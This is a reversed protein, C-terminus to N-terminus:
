KRKARGKNEEKEGHLMDMDPIVALPVIDFYKEMDEASRITDDMLYKIILYMCYIFAGALAGMMTYKTYSPGAKKDALKAKQAVNPANTSMTKPLYDICVDMLTNAIDRAQKPDTSTVKINLIRTDQPNEL